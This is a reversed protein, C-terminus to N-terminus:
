LYKEYKYVLRELEADSVSTPKYDYLQGLAAQSPGVGPMTRVVDDCQQIFDHKSLHSQKLWKTVRDSDLLKRYFRRGPGEEIMGGRVVDEVAGHRASPPEHKGQGSDVTLHQHNEFVRNDNSHTTVNHVVTNPVSKRQRLEQHANKLQLTLDRERQEAQNARRTEADLTAAGRALKVSTNSAYTRQTAVADDLKSKAEALEKELNGVQTQLNKTMKPESPELSVDKGAQCGVSSTKVKHIKQEKSVKKKNGSIKPQKRTKVLRAVLLMAENYLDSSIYIPLM